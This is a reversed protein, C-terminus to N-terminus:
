LRQTGNNFGLKANITYQILKDNLYSKYVFSGDEITISILNSGSIMWVIPSMVLDEYLAVETDKILGSQFVISQQIKNDWQLKQGVSTSVAYNGGSLSYENKRMFSRASEFTDVRKYPLRIVQLGGLRNLFVLDNNAYKSCDDKVYYFYEESRATTSTFLQITYYTTGSPVVNGATGSILTTINNLNFGSPCYYMRESSTSPITFTSTTNSPYAVVKVRDPRTTGLLFTQFDFQGQYIERSRVRTLFKAASDDCLWDNESYSSYDVFPFAGGFAYRDTVSTVNLYETPTSTSTASYEYGFRVDYKVYSSSAHTTAIITQLSQYSVYSELIRGINFVGYNTSSPYISVKLKSVALSNIMVECIFRFNPATYIASTTERVTYVADNFAPHFVQGSPNIIMTASLAM